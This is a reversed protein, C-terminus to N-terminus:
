SGQHQKKVPRHPRHLLCPKIRTGDMTGIDLSAALHDGGIGEHRVAEGRTIHLPFVCTGQFRGPFCVHQDCPVKARGDGGALVIRKGAEMSKVPFLRLRQLSDIKPQDLRYHIELNRTGRDTGAQFNVRVNRDQDAHNGGNRRLLRHLSEVPEGERSQSVVAAGAGLLASRRQGPKSGQARKRQNPLRARSQRLLAAIRKVALFPRLSHPAHECMSRDGIHSTAASGSRGIDLCQRITRVLDM